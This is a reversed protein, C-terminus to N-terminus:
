GVFPDDACEDWEDVLAYSPGVIGSRDTMQRHTPQWLNEEIETPMGTRTEAMEKTTKWRIDRGQIVMAETEIKTLKARRAAMMELEEQLRDKEEENLEYPQEMRRRIEDQLCYGCYTTKGEDTIYASQAPQGCGACVPQPPKKEEEWEPLRKSYIQINEALDPRRHNAIDMLQRWYKPLLRRAWLLQEASLLPADTALRGTEKDRIRWIIQACLSSLFDSDYRTFGVGNLENNHTGSKETSTQRAYLQLLGYIVSKDSHELQYLIKDRTWAM